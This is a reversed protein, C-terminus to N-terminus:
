RKWDVEILREPDFFSLNPCQKRHIIIGRGKSVFGVIEDGEIPCCCKAFKVMINNVGKINIKSDGNKVEQDYNDTQEIHEIQKAERQKRMESEYINILKGSIVKASYAGYGIASFLEDILNFNYKELLAQIYKKESLKSASYGANKIAQEFM